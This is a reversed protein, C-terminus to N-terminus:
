SRALHAGRILVYLRHIGSGRLRTRHYSKLARVYSRKLTDDIYWPRLVLGRKVRVPPRLTVASTGLCVSLAVSVYSTM